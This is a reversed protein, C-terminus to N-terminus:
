DPTTVGRFRLFTGSKAQNLGDRRPHRHIPARCGQDNAYVTRMRTMKALEAIPVVIRPKPDSM